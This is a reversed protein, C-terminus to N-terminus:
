KRCDSITGRECLVRSSLPENLICSLSVCMYVIHIPRIPFHLPNNFKSRRRLKAGQKFQYMAAAVVLCSNRLAYSDM